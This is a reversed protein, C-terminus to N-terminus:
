KKPPKPTAISNIIENIDGKVRNRYQTVITKILWFICAITALIFIANWVSADLGLAYKFDTTLLTVGCTILLGLPTVWANKEALYKETKLLVLEIKDRTTVIIEQSTNERIVEKGLEIIIKNNEM